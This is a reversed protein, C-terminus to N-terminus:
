IEDKSVSDLLPPPSATATTVTGMGMGIRVSGLYPWVCEDMGKFKKLILMLKTVCACAYVCVCVYTCM